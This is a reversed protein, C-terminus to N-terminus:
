WNILERPTIAHACKDMVFIKQMHNDFAYINSARVAGWLEDKFAKGTYGIVKCNAHLHQVCFHHEVHPLV